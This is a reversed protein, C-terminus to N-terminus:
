ELLKERDEEDEKNGEDRDDGDGPESGLGDLGTKVCDVLGDEECAGVVGPSCLVAPFLVLILM